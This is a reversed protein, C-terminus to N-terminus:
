FVAPFLLVQMVPFRVLQNFRMLLEGDQLIGIFEIEKEVQIRRTKVELTDPKLTHIELENGSCNSILFIRDTIPEYEIFRIYRNNDEKFTLLTEGGLTRYELAFIGTESDYDRYYWANKEHFFAIPQEIDYLRTLKGRAPDLECFSFIRDKGNYTGYGDIVLTGTGTDYVNCYYWIWGEGSQTKFPLIYEGKKNGTEDVIVLYMKESETYEDQVEVIAYGGDNLCFVSKISRKEDQNVYLVDINGTKFDMLTIYQFSHYIFRRDNTWEDRAIM